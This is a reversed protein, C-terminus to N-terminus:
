SEDEPVANSNVNSLADITVKTQAAPANGSKSGRSIRVPRVQKMRQSASIRDILAKVLLDLSSGETYDTPCVFDARNQELLELAIDKPSKRKRSSRKEPNYVAIACGGQYKIMKMCPVDTEGDGIYAMHTFPIERDEEPVFKNIQANDYSNLIGKNIRFLYQTKTTYNVALAPWTAVSNQDYYFGSAFIYKFRNAISTGEVMERLGSSIIYHELKVDRDRAYNDLRTFWEKVGKFLTIQKGHDRFSKRLIKVRANRAHDLMQFMYALIEDMDNRQAMEKVKHWFDKPRLNLEPIFSHEQMNDRALTGDFDYAIAMRTLKRAM